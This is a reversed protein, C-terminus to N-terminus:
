GATLSRCTGYSMAPRGDRYTRHSFRGDERIRIWDRGAELRIVLASSGSVRGALPAESGEFDLQAAGEAIAVEFAATPIGTAGSCGVHVNRCFVALAPKCVFGRPLDAAAAAGPLSALVALLLLRAGAM